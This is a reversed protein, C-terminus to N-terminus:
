DTLAFSTGAAIDYAWIQYTDWPYYIPTPVEGSSWVVLGDDIRPHTNATDAESITKSEQTKLNYLVIESANGTDANKVSVVYDKWIDPDHYAEGEFIRTVTGKNMDYVYIGSKAMIGLMHKEWVIRGDDLRPNWDNGDGPDSNYTLQRVTSNGTDYLYIDDYGGARAGQYVVLSGDSCPNYYNGPLNQPVESNAHTAFDYIYMGSYGGPKTGTWALLGNSVSVFSPVLGTETMDISNVVWWDVVTTTTTGDSATTTTTAGNSATTTTTSGSSTTTTSTPPMGEIYYIASGSDPVRDVTFGTASLSVAVVSITTPNGLEALSMGASLVTSGGTGSLTRVAAWGNGNWSELYFMPFSPDTDGSIRVRFDAGAGEYPSGTGPNADTNLLFLARGSGLDSLGIGSWLDTQCTFGGFNRQLSLKSFDLTQEENPDDWYRTETDALGPAVWVAGCVGVVILAILAIILKTRRM